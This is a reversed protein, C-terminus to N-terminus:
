RRAPVWIWHWSISKMPSGCSHLPFMGNGHSTCESHRLTSQFPNTWNRITRTTTSQVCSRKVISNVIPPSPFIRVCVSMRKCRNCRLSYFRIFIFLSLWIHFSHVSLSAISFDSGAFARPFPNICCVTRSRCLSSGLTHTHTQTHTFPSFSYLLYNPFSRRSPSHFFADWKRSYCERVRYMSLLVHQTDEKNRGFNDDDNRLRQRRQQQKKGVERKGGGKGRAGEGSEM